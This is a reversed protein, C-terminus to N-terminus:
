GKTKRKKGNVQIEKGEDSKRPDEKGKRFTSPSPDENTSGKQEQQIEKICNKTSVCFVKHVTLPRFNISSITKDLKAFHTLAISNNYLIM